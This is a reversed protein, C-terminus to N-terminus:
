SAIFVTTLKTATCPPINIYVHISQELAGSTILYDYCKLTSLHQTIMPAQSSMYTYIYCDSNLMSQAGALPRKSPCKKDSNGTMRLGTQLLDAIPGWVYLRCARKFAGPTM